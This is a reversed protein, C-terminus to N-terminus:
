TPEVCTVRHITVTGDPNCTYLVGGSVGGKAACYGAAYGAAFSQCDDARIPESADAPNLQFAGALTVIALSIRVRNMNLM